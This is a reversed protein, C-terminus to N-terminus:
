EVVQTLISQMCSLLRALDDKRVYTPRWVLAIQRHPGPEALPRLNIGSQAVLASDAAMQPIFTIGQGGAVMEIMTYLSTGQVTTASQRSARWHCAALAHDRLCHGEELLMIEDAPLQTSSLARAQALRHGPPFAICFNEEFIVGHELGGLEYPLAMLACDIMGNNLRELLAASQEEVLQLRLQPFMERVGPLIKPLLFPGITPIVGLRLTGILVGRRGKALEVMQAAEDVIQRAKPELMVGLPTPMVKRKSREFLVGGLVSELEQIGASLTSQTVFCREAAQGFHNLELVALFYQLQRVSPLHM